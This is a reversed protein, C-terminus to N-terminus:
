NGLDVPEARIEVLSAAETGALIVVVVTVTDVVVVAGMEAETCSGSGLAVAWRGVASQDLQCFCWGQETCSDEGPEVVGM